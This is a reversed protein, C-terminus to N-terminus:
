IGSLDISDGVKVNNTDSFGANVELVYDIPQGPNYIALKSDPTGSIPAQINKDIKVVKGGSIWIIDLPILMDKMWFSPTVQKSDFVFLMGVNQDLTSRGGLGVERKSKTDAIEVNLKTEGVTIIKEAAPSTTPTVGPIKINGSDKVLLGVLVIFAAVGALPLLLQKVM